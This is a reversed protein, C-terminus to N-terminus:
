NVRQCLKARHWLVFIFGAITMLVMLIIVLLFAIAMSMGQVQPSEINGYCVDCALLQWGFFFGAMLIWRPNALRLRRNSM